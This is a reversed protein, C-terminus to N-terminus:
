HTTMMAAYAPGFRGSAPVELRLTDCVAALSKIVNIIYGVSGPGAEVRTSLVHDWLADQVEVQEWGALRQYTALVHRPPDSRRVSQLVHDLTVLETSGPVGSPKPPPTDRWLEPVPAPSPVAEQQRRQSGTAATAIAAAAHVVTPADAEEDCSLARYAWDNDSGSDTDLHGLFDAAAEDAEEDAM